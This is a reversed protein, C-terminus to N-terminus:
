IKWARVIYPPYPSNAVPIFCGMGAEIPRKM